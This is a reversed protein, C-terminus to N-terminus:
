LTHSSTLVKTVTCDEPFGYHVIRNGWLAKAVTRAKQNATPIAIAYKTFHDTM